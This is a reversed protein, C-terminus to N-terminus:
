FPVRLSKSYQRLIARRLHSLENGDLTTREAGDALMGRFQQPPLLSSISNLLFNLYKLSNHYESM